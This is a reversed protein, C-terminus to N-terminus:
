QGGQLALRKRENNLHFAGDLVVEEVPKVGDRLVRQNGYEGALSVERLVFRSSASRVFIFERDNERVVATIPLVREARASEKLTMTALMAPKLRRQPNPVDM